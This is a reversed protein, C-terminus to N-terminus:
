RVSVISFTALGSMLPKLMPAFRELARYAFVPMLRFKECYISFPQPKM